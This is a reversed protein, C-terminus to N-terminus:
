SKGYVRRAGIKLQIVTIILIALFLVYAIAAGYGANFVPVGAPLPLVRDGDDFRAARGQHHRLDRRLAAARQDDVLRDPLAHRAPPVAAGRQPVLEV